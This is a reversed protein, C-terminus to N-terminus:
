KKVSKVRQVIGNSCEYGGHMALRDKLTNRSVSLYGAMDLLKIGDGGTNLFDYAADLAAEKERRRDAPSKKAAASRVREPEAEANLDTLAGSDDAKHIPYDFWLNIPAFRPFERLTTEIRWATRGQATQRAEREAADAERQMEPSLLRACAARMQAPSLLDDQSVENEWGIARAQLVKARAQAAARDEIQKRLANTVPLEVMDILADPDRAFVGSGSARDMARKGGQAGKSHHHCYIVACGLETCVKDFQNCFAAMQDASNEDGTIVKYIPDLVVAVYDKKLARRILRPALQDMPVARGRLNWIDINGLNEPKWDLAEYVDRFRHLCSARDLELNVYLVRGQACRWGFWSKGEAIAITMEILAFSKGAKSPGALLMKHGKRLVGAILPDALPPLNDWTDAISEPDPLNDTESEIWELWETFNPKGINTDLLYQKKGARMVGPMRSLRSPNRNQSDVELGNKRCIEYLRDVRRRYEDYSGAEIRVIAHLSKGGSHVLCAIPLQLRRLIENQQEIPTKDSEVLAYRYDTVNDNRVGQGDLPNFRIWAGVNPDYDGLVSGIDGGCHALASILQGATRDWCGKTPMARGEHQYCRTVYGVRESAEFLTELYTILQKAPNWKDPITVECGEIWNRDILCGEGDRSIEDEWGLEHGSKAPSWGRDQAMKILTGATVKSAMDGRFSEWKRTCEGRQYRGEDSSSWRDWVTVSYGAEKLAMGVNVWEQYTCARPDIWNILEELNLNEM